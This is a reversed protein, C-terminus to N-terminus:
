TNVHYIIVKVTILISGSLGFFIDVFVDLVNEKFHM